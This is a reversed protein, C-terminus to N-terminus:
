NTDTRIRVAQAHLDGAIRKMDNLWQERQIPDPMAKELIYGDMLLAQRSQNKLKALYKQTQEGLYPRLTEEYANILSDFLHGQTHPIRDQRLETEMGLLAASIAELYAAAAERKSQTVTQRTTFYTSIAGIVGGLIAGVVAALIEM